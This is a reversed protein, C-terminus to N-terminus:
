LLYKEKLDRLWWLQKVSISTRRDDFDSILTEVFQRETFTMEELVSSLGMEMIRKAESLREDPSQSSSEETARYAM